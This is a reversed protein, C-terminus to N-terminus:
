KKKEFPFEYTIGDIIITLVVEKYKKDEFWVIGSVSEKPFVTNPKLSSTRVYEAVSGLTVQQARSNAAARQQAATDPESITATTTTGDSNRITATSQKTAMSAGVAGLAAAWKGRGELSSALKEPERSALVRPKPTLVNLTWNTPDVLLREAKKNEVSVFAHPIWNKREILTVSITVQDSLIVKVAQGDSMISDSNSSGQQWRIVEPSKTLNSSSDQALGLVPSLILLWFVVYRM